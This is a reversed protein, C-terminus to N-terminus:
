FYNCSQIVNYKQALDRTVRFNHTILSHFCHSKTSYFSVYCLAFVFEFIASVPIKTSCLRYLSGSCQHNAKYVHEPLFMYMDFTVNASDCSSVSLGYLFFPFRGVPFINWCVDPKGDVHLTQALKM